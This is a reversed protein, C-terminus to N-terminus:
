EKRIRELAKRVADRVPPSADFRLGMLTKVIEPATGADAIEGLTQIANIRISEVVEGKAMRLLEAVAARAHKLGRLQIVAADRITVHTHRLM